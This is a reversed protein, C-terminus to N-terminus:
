PNPKSSAEQEKQYGRYSKKNGADRYDQYGEDFDGRQQQGYGQAGAAGLQGASSWMMQTNAAQNATTAMAVAFDIDIAGLQENFRRNDANMLSRFGLDNQFMDLEEGFVTRALEEQFRAQNDLRSKFGERQLQQIYQDNSLRLNFGLQEMRAKDKQLDFKRTGRQYDQLIAESQRTYQDQLDLLQENVKEAGQQFTQTQNASEQQLGEAVLSGQQRLGELGLATQQNAAQEAINSARPAASSIATQPSKGSKAQLLQSVQATQGLPSGLPSPLRTGGALNNRLTELLTKAV